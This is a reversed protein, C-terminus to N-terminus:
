HRDGNQPGQGRKAHRKIGTGMRGRLAQGRKAGTGNLAQEWETREANAQGWEARQRKIGTGRRSGEAGMGTGMRDKIGTGM